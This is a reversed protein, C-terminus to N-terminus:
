PNTGSLLFKGVSHGHLTWPGDVPGNVLVDAHRWEKSGMHLTWPFFRCIAKPFFHRGDQIQDTPDEWPIKM